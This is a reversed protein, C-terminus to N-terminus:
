AAEAAAARIAQLLRQLSVGEAIDTRLTLGVPGRAPEADVRLRVLRGEVLDGAVVGHSIV